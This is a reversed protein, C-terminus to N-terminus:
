TPRSGAHHFSSGNVLAIFCILELTVFMSIIMGAIFDASFIYLKIRNLNNILSLNNSFASKIRQRNDTSVQWNSKMAHRAAGANKKRSPSQNCQFFFGHYNSCVRM